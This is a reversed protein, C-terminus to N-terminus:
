GTARAFRTMSLRAAIIKLHREVAGEGSEVLSRARRGMDTIREPEDLLGALAWALSEASSIRIAGGGTILREVVEGAHSTHPGVLM